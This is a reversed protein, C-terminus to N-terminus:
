GVSFTVAPLPPASSAAAGSSSSAVSTGGDEEQPAILKFRRLMEAAVQVATFFCALNTRDLSDNCNVRLVGVQNRVYVLRQRYATLRDTMRDWGVGVGREECCCPSELPFEKSKEDSTETNEFEIEKKEVVIKEAIEVAIEVVIGVVSEVIEVDIEIGRLEDM